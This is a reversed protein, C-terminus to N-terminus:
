LLKHPLNCKTKIVANTNAARSFCDTIGTARKVKADTHEHMHVHLHSVCNNIVQQLLWLFRYVSGFRRMIVNQTTESLRWDGLNIGGLVAVEFRPTM